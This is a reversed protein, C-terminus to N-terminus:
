FITQAEEEKQRTRQEKQTLTFAKNVTKQGLRAKEILAPSAKDLITEVKRVTDKGVNGYKGLESDVRVLPTQCKSVRVVWPNM